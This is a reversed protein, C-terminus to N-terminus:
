KENNVEEKDKVVKKFPIVSDENVIFAMDDFNQNRTEPELHPTKIILQDGIGEGLWIGRHNNIVEDYWTEIELRQFGQVNDAIILITNENDKFAKLFHEYQVLIEPSLKDKLRSAGNIVYVRKIDSTNNEMEQILAPIVADFKDTFCEVPIKSVDYSKVADLVRVKTQPIRKLINFLSFFFNENDSMANGTIISVKEKFFDYTENLKTDYNVGVPVKSLDKIDQLLHDVTVVDPLVPVRMAHTTYNKQLVALGERITQNIKDPKTIYATQFELKMDGIGTIGRGRVKYPLLGKECMLLTRYDGDNAMQLVLKNSFYEALKPRFSNAAGTTIVFSVGYKLSDRYMAGLMEVFNGMTESFVEYNNIVINILPLKNGSQQIYNVYSGAYDVFLEKRRDLEKDIMIFMNIVQEADEITCVEGVHPAKTFIKLTESGFDLIYMNLEDPSHDAIASYIMTTLLDEKGSDNMGWILTNATTLNLTLLGQM